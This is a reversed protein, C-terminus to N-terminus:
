GTRLFTATAPAIGLEKNVEVNQMQAIHKITALHHVTHSGAFVIERAVSTGVIAVRKDAVSIETSLEVNQQLDDDSLNNLFATIESIASKATSINTEITGGRSRKDYDIFGVELGNIIAYYHDLIHRMHAGASSMFFPAIVETYQAETVSELYDLAQQLITMQSKIMTVQEKFPMIGM